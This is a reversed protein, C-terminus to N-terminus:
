MRIITKGDILEIFIRDFSKNWEKKYENLEIDRDEPWSGFNNGNQRIVGNELKYFSGLLYISSGIEEKIQISSATSFIKVLVTDNVVPKYFWETNIGNISDIENAFCHIYNGGLQEGFDDLIEMKIHNLTLTSADRNGIREFKMSKGVETIRATFEIKNQFIYYSFNYDEISDDITIFGKTVNHLTYRENLIPNKSEIDLWNKIMATKIPYQQGIQWHKHVLRQKVEFTYKNYFENWEAESIRSETAYQNVFITFDSWFMFLEDFGSDIDKGYISKYKDSYNEHKLVSLASYRPLTLLLFVMLVLLILDKKMIVRKGSYRKIVNSSFKHHVRNIKRLFNRRM